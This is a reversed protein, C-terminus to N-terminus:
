VRWRPLSYYTDRLGSQVEISKAQRYPYIDSQWTIGSLADICNDDNAKRDPNYKRLEQQIQSIGRANKRIKLRNQNWAPLLTAIKEHKSLNQPVKFTKIINTLVRKGERQRQANLILIQKQLNSELTIGGGKPEIRVEASEYESMMIFSQEIFEQHNWKGYFCDLLVILPLENHNQSIGVCVIARNDSGDKTSEAPDIFIYIKQKPIDFDSILHNSFDSIDFFGGNADDPQQQYQANFAYEGMTQKILALQEITHRKPFLAENAERKYIFNGIKYTKKETNLAELNVEEWTDKAVEKLYGTLDNKHLRQMIVIMRGPNDQYALLRSLFSETFYTISNKRSAESYSESAKLLDDAIGIHCHKGTIAGGVTTAFLGGGKDNFWQEAKDMILKSNAFLGRYTKSKFFDRTEVSVSKSLEDGYSAYIFKINPYLGLAYPIFCRAVIETKGYSPPMSIIVNHLQGQLILHLIECLYGYHWNDLFPMSYYFEFKYKVFEYLNRRALERRLLIHESFETM